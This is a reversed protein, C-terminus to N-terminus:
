SGLPCFSSNVSNSSNDGTKLVYCFFEVSVIETSHPCFAYKLYVSVVKCM